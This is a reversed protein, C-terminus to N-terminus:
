VAPITAKGFCQKQGSVAGEISNDLVPCDATLVCYEDGQFFTYWQCNPINRCLQICREKSPVYASWRLLGQLCTGSAGCVLDTVLFDMSRLKLKLSMKHVIYMYTSLKVTIGAAHTGM